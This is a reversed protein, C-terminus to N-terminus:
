LYLSISSPSDDFDTVVEAFHLTSFKSTAVCFRIKASLTWAMMVYWDRCQIFANYFNDFFISFFITRLVVWAECPGSTVSRFVQFCLFESTEIMSRPVSLLKCVHFKSGIGDSLRLQGSSFKCPCATCVFFSLFGLCSAWGDCVRWKMALSNM